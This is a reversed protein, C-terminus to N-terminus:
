SSTSANGGSPLSPTWCTTWGVLFSHRLCRRRCHRCRQRWNRFLAARTVHQLCPVPLKTREAPSLRCLFVLAEKRLRSPLSDASRPCRCAPRAACGVGQRIDAGTVGMWGCDAGGAANVEPRSHARVAPLPLLVAAANRNQLPLRWYLCLLASGATPAAMPLQGQRMEPRSATAVHVHAGLARTHPHM